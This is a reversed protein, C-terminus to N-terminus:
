AVLLLEEALHPAPPGEHRMAAVAFHHAQLPASNVERSPHPALFALVSRAYSEARRMRAPTVPVEQDVLRRLLLGNAYASDAPSAATLDIDGGVASGRRRYEWRTSGDEDAAALQELMEELQDASYPGSVMRELVDDLWGAPPAVSCLSAAVEGAPRTTAELRLRRRVVV